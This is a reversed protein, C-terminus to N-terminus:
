FWAEAELAILSHWHRDRREPLEDYQDLSEAFNNGFANHVNSRQLGYLLRLSPRTYIGTGLPNFVFGTKLQWTLRERADGYELGRGDARGETSRFASDYHERYLNGLASIERAGSTELLLHVVPTLYGQVRLVTSYFTRNDDGPAIANDRNYAHGYLVAWGLDLVEPVLVIQMENGVTVEYREDTFDRVFVRFEEGQLVETYFGDPHRRQFNAFLNSWRLPGLQGFGLMAVLKFSEASSAGPQPLLRMADPNREFYREAVERRVYDEYTISPTQYPAFGNGAVEPEFYYQGGAGLQVHKGLSLRVMGGGSAITNYRAGRLGYGADGVAVLLDLPGRQLRASVGVTDYFLEAPRMDYLGLEGVYSTLTGLQWTVNPLLVNGAKAYLQTLAFSDLGGGALDANRVSGGEIKSHVSTWVKSSGGQQPLVDLKLELVGYPGENLLRGYLNWYGLRSSGGQFDPRAMIRFYGGADFREPRVEARVAPAMAMAVAVFLAVRASM